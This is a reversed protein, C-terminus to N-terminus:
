NDPDLVNVIQATPIGGLCKMTVVLEVMGIVDMMITKMMVIIMKLITQLDVNILQHHLQPQQQPQSQVETTRFYKLYSNFFLFNNIKEAM